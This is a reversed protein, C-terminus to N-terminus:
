SFDVAKGTELHTSKRNFYVGINWDRWDDRGDFDRDLRLNEPMIRIYGKSGM